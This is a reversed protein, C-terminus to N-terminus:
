CLFGVSGRCRGPAALLQQSIWAMCPLGGRGGVTGDGGTGSACQASFLIQVISHVPLTRNLGKVPTTLTGFAQRTPSELM